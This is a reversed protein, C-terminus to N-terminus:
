RMITNVVRTKVRSLLSRIMSKKVPDTTSKTQSNALEEVVEEELSEAATFMPYEDIEREFFAVVQLQFKKLPAKVDGDCDIRDIIRTAGLEELMRDFDKGCKAFNAHYSDGLGLVAFKRASLDPKDNKLHSFLARANTPPDGHGTTSTVILLVGEDPLKDHDYDAMDVVDNIMNCEELLSGVQKACAEATGMETGFLVTVKTM